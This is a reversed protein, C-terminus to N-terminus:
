FPKWKTVTVKTGAVSTRSSRSSTSSGRSGSLGLGMSQATSYGGALVRAIDAIGPGEDRFQIRIGIRSRRDRRRHHRRGRRRAGVRQAHAGLDRDHRRRPSPTSADSRRSPACGGACSSSTTRPTSRAARPAPPRERCAIVERRHRAATRPARARRRPQARHPRRGDRLGHARADGRGRPAHRRAGHDDGMLKAMRGTEALIRAVYTDVMDLGSIDIVLGTAGRKEIAALVDDQFAEAVDDHLEVHVSALLTTGIRLIPIPGHVSLGGQQAIAKGVMALALEIGDASARSRTCRRSTSASSCSRARSRRASAPSSRRPASSSARRRDDQAPPRRGEHRRRPRRRHRHHHVEGADEVVRVLVSEM